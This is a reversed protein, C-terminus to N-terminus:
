EWFRLKEKVADEDMLAILALYASRTLEYPQKAKVDSLVVKCRDYCKENGSPDKYTDGPSVFRIAGGPVIRILPKTMNIVGSFM